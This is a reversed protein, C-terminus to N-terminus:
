KPKRDEKDDLVIIYSDNENSDQRMRTWGGQCQYFGGEYVKLDSSRDKFLKCIDKETDSEPTLVIQRRGEEIFLGVKM